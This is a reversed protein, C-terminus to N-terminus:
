GAMVSTENTGVKALEVPVKFDSKLDVMLWQNDKEDKPLKPGPQLNNTSESLDFVEDKMETKTKDNELQKMAEQYSPITLLKKLYLANLEIESLAHNTSKSSRKKQKDLSMSENKDQELKKM